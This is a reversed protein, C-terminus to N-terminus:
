FPTYNAFFSRLVVVLLLFHIFTFTIWLCSGNIPKTGQWFMFKPTYTWKAGNPITKAGPPSKFHGFQFFTIKQLIYVQKFVCFDHFSNNNAEIHRTLLLVLPWPGYPYMPCLHPAQPPGLIALFFSKFIAKLSFFHFFPCCNTM